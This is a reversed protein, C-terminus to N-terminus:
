HATELAGAATSTISAPERNAHAPQKMCGSPMCDPGLLTWTAEGTHCTGVSKLGCQLGHQGTCAGDGACQGNFCCPAIRTNYNLGNASCTAAVDAPAVSKSLKSCSVGIDTMGSPCNPSRLCPCPLVAGIPLKHPPSHWHRFAMQPTVASRQSLHSCTCTTPAPPPPCAFLVAFCLM